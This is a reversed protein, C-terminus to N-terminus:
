NEVEEEKKFFSEIVTSEKHRIMGQLYEEYSGGSSGGSTDIRLSVNAWANSSNDYNGNITYSPPSSSYTHTVVKVEGYLMWGELLKQNIKSELDSPSSGVILKYEM